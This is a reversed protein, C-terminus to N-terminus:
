YYDNGHSLQGLDIDHDDCSIGYAQILEAIEARAELRDVRQELTMGDSM